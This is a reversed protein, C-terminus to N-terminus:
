QGEEQKLFIEILEETTKIKATKNRPCAWWTRRDERYAYWGSDLTWEAFKKMWDKTIATCEEAAKPEDTFVGGHKEIAFLTQQYISSVTM